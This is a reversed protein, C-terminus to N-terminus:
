DDVKVLANRVANIWDALKAGPNVADNRELMRFFVATDSASHKWKMRNMAIVTRGNDTAVSNIM